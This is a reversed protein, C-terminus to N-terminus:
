MKMRAMERCSEMCRHCQETCAQMQEDDAFESCAQACRECAEACVGCVHAHLSSGRLMFDASTRCLEACDLLSELHGAEAHRGGMQLCYATTQVCINHCDTCNQICTTMDAAIISESTYPM